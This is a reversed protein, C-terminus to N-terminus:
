KNDSINSVWDQYIYNSNVKASDILEKLELKEDQGEIVMIQSEAEEYKRMLVLIHGKMYTGLHYYESNKDITDLEKELMRLGKEYMKYSNASDGNLYYLIGTFIPNESMPLISNMYLTVDLAEKKEDVDMLFGVKNFYYMAINPCTAIASDLLTIAYRFSDRVQEDSITHHYYYAMKIDMAADNYRRAKATDCIDSDGKIGSNDCAAILLSLSISILVAYKM